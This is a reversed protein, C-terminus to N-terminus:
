RQKKPLARPAIIIGSLTPTTVLPITGLAQLKKVTSRALDLREAPAYDVAYVKLGMAQTERIRAEIWQVDATSCPRLAKSSADFSQYVSEVLVGHLLTKLKPLLPFGRNIVIRKEPWRTHLATIAQILRPEHAIAGGPLHTASDTTDLFFGDYGKGVAPAACDELVYDLWSAHQVNLLHSSWDKNEGVTPVSRKKAADDAPSGAALEVLSIYAYFQHGLAHGPQLEANCHPDLICTEYALLDAAKPEHSYNIYLREQAAAATGLLWTAWLSM